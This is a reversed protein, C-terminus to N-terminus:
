GAIACRYKHMKSAKEPTLEFSDKGNERKKRVINVLEEKLVDVNVL